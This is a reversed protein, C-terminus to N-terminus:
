AKTPCLKFEMRYATGSRGDSEPIDYHDPLVEIAKFGCAQFFLQAGTNYEWVDVCVRSCRGDHLKSIVKACMLEGFGKRQFYPDVVFNELEIRKPWLSYIMYGVIRQQREVVMGIHNANKLTNVFEREGWPYECADQEIRVVDPLDRQIMWRIHGSRQKKQMM